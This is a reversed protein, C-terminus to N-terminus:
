WPQEAPCGVSHHANSPPPCVGAGISPLHRASPYVVGDPTTIWARIAEADCVTRGTNPIGNFVNISYYLTDGIHVDPSSTFLNIRLGSGTCGVPIQTARAAPAGSLLLLLGALL